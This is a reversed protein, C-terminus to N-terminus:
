HDLTLSAIQSGAKRKAMVQTASTWITRALGNEVDVNSYSELSTFFTVIQPTQVGVIPNQFKPLGPPSGLEWKLLTLRMRVSKEFHPQLVPPTLRVQVSEEFYPQSM